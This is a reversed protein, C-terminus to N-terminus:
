GRGKVRYRKTRSLHEGYGNKIMVYIYVLVLALVVIFYIGLYKEANSLGWVLLTSTYWALSIFCAWLSTLYYYYAKKNKVNLNFVVLRWFALVGSLGGLSLAIMLLSEWMLHFILQLISVFLLWGAFPSMLSIPLIVGVAIIVRFTKNGQTM